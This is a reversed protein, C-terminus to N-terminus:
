FFFLFIKILTEQLESSTPGYLDDPQVQHKYTFVTAWPLPINTYKDLVMSNM